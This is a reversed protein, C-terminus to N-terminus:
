SFGRIKSKLCDSPLYIGSCSVIRIHTQFSGM